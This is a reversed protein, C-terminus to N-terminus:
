TTLLSAQHSPGAHSVGAFLQQLQRADDHHFLSSGEAGALALLIAYRRLPKITAPPLGLYVVLRGPSTPIRLANGCRSFFAGCAICLNCFWNPFYPKSFQNQNHRRLIGMQEKKKIMTSYIRLKGGLLTAFQFYNVPTPIKYYSFILFTSILISTM